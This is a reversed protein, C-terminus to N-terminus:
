NMLICSVAKCSLKYNDLIDICHKHNTCEINNIYLIVDNIKLGSYYAINNKVINIIIVGPGKNNKIVGNQYVFFLLFSLHLFSYM